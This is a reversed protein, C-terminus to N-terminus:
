DIGFAVYATISCRDINQVFERAHLCNGQLADMWVMRGSDPVCWLGHSRTSCIRGLSQTRLLLLQEWLIQQRIQRHRGSHRDEIRRAQLLYVFGTRITYQTVYDTTYQSCNRVFPTYTHVCKYLKYISKRIGGNFKIIAWLNNAKDLGLFRAIGM